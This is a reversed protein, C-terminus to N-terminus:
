SFDSTIKKTQITPFTFYRTTINMKTPLYWLLKLYRFLVVANLNSIYGCYLM